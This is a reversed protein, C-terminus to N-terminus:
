DPGRCRVGFRVVLLYTGHPFRTRRHGAEFRRRAQRYDSRFRCLADLEEVRWARDKCALQPNRQRRPEWSTPHSNWDQTRIGRVGLVRKGERRRRNRHRREEAQLRDNLLSLLEEDSLHEFGPPHHLRFSSEDPMLGDARFFRGPRLTRYVRQAAIDEPLTILGPWHAARNVLDSECPNAMLYVLKDLVDDPTILEVLSLRGPEWFPGWRGRLCNLARAILLNAREFFACIRGTPDYVVMHLHNSLAVMGVIRLGFLSVAFGLVYLLLEAVFADPRLFYRRELCRRTVLWTTGEHIRRPQTMTSTIPQLLWTNGTKKLPGGYDESFVSSDM